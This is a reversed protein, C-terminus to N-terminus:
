VKRNSFFINKINIDKSHNLEFVFNKILRMLVLTVIINNEEM